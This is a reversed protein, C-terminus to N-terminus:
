FPLLRGGREVVVKASSTASHAIAGGPSTELSLSAGGCSQSFSARLCAALDNTGYANNSTLWGDCLAGPVWGLLAPFLVASPGMCGFGLLRGHLTKGKEMVGLGFVTGCCGRRTGRSLCVSLCDGIVEVAGWRVGFWEWKWRHRPPPSRALGLYSFTVISLLRLTNLGSNGEYVDVELYLPVVLTTM